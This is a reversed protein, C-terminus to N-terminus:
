GTACWSSTARRRSRSSSPRARWWGWFRRRSSCGSILCGRERRGPWWGRSARRAWRRKGRGDGGPSEEMLIREYYGEYRPVVGAAGFREVALAHADRSMQLWRAPDRLVLLAQETMTKVDGLDALFGAVGDEVVEPVGGVRTAVVPTGSAMAELAALGFSESESPLLMLDACALLEAVTDQKGLFVVRDAVGLEEAAAAAEPRDPGDGVLILRAPLEKQIGAFVRVVDRVRKVPRFNSVHIVMKEGERLFASRRCPYRDRDYVEPDVFNPVVEIAQAPIHFRQVTERKLFESVATIGDSKALSFRMLEWFSREQGVITIDTGHLTTVIKLAHNPPLMERAIWASTAHPIAYHVHLLDLEQRMAVERMSAALSLSYSSHEFLPYRLSEVEHFYVREMFHPLRFPHAYTIFHVEHGRKALEIGLETAVAGSGGYTPYCTIGIKMDREDTTPGRDEAARWSRAVDDALEARPRTADLWVADGPLQHRFWTLQRRAYARTNKRVRDLAEELAVEGRLAPLLEAYGTANMGPDGAGYGRALLGRVEDLLGAEVMEGVRADIAAYLLDRPPDLVFVLPRLPPAEPPAERHWWSLPRGTLLPLELARLLRQRGGGGGLRAATGPDLARLWRRLADTDLAELRGALAARRGPDLAPERFIPHTLARLFFGTGGVLLPVRGRGGIEALLGRVLRAFKGASFREDPDVLDLGHHPAAARQAPTAKATGVDMGRYVQRSDMSVIEADLRRAVEISLATKGSATPGVIALLDPAGRM